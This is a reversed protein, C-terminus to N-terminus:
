LPQREGETAVAFGAQDLTRRADGGDRLAPNTHNLHIFRVKAREGAPLPALRQMSEVMFPHPVEAMSRGPLEGEAFFTGDLYAVDVDTILDEIRRDWKEWKDIDPIFVVTRSPGDIRYGVTESYEDRHPVLFPTIAVRNNLQISQDAQLPKLAINNLKVLQDWPGNSELFARMRPMAYVAVGKAGVVERGLHMLGAYHGIHAHTLLIGDLAPKSQGERGPAIQDLEHLQAPFDPTAEIMWRQQSQPDVIALCVVRKRQSPNKWAEACCDKDCGAHPVGGDQAIGLVVVYPGADTPATAPPQRVASLSTAALTVCMALVGIIFTSWRM